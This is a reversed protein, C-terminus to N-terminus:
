EGDVRACEPSRTGDPQMCTFRVGIEVPVGGDRRYLVLEDKVVRAFIADADRSTANILVGVGVSGLIASGVLIGVVAGTKPQPASM